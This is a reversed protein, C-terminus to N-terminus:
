INYFIKMYITKIYIYVSKIITHQKQYIFHTTKLIKVSNIRHPKCSENKRLKIKVSQIWIQM